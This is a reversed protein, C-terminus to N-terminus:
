NNQNRVNHEAAMEQISKISGASSGGTGTSFQRGNEKFKGDVASQVSKNYTEELKSLNTNTSDEDDSVFFELLDVPLGKETAQKIAQNMLKERSRAKESDEFKKQLEELAIEAPTKSPNRKAVEANVLSDLNKEKWTNLGKTFNSDLRPQLVKKGAETDLFGEVGEVTPTSLEGLYTKVESQDKNSDLWAKIGELSYTENAFFQIKKGSLSLLFRKDQKM